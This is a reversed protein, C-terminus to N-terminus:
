STEAKSEAKETAKREKAVRLDNKAKELGAETPMNVIMLYLVDEQM